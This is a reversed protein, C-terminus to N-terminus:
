RLGKIRAGNPTDEVDSVFVGAVKLGTALDAGYFHCTDILWQALGARTITTPPLTPVTIRDNTRNYPTTGSM